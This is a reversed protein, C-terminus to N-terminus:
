GAPPDILPATRRLQARMAWLTGRSINAFELPTNREHWAEVQALAASSKALYERALPRLGDLVADWAAIRNALYQATHAVIQAQAHERQLRSTEAPDDSVLASLKREVGRLLFAGELAEPVKASLTARPQASFDLVDGRDSMQLNHLDLFLRYAREQETYLALMPGRNHPFAAACFQLLQAAPDAHADLACRAMWWANWPPGVWPRSTVMLNQLNHAGPAYARADAPLVRLHTPALGKFLIADSHYEFVSVRRPDSGFAQLVGEYPVWYELANKECVPDDIAHAYCRERPAWLAVVNDRPTVNTPPPVTDHYALHAVSAGPAVEALAEALINTALLAQDSPTLAACGPCECWGGGRIDDGFLHYIDAGAFREFFRRANRRLEASAGPNTPCLNYRADRVGNRLPFWEPHLEFATRPVMAALHHGGFQLRMGRKAAEAVIAPGDTDWREFMWGGATALEEATTPRERDPRDWRSPPTDHFFLDNLRNRSAWEMWSRWDDTFADQGLILTRRSFSPQHESRGNPLPDTSRLCIGSEGPEVWAFGLQELLWYLGNLAGRSNEGRLLIEGPTVNASFSDPADRAAAADSVRIVGTENAAASLAFSAHLQFEDRIHAAIAPDSVGSTDVHWGHLGAASITM